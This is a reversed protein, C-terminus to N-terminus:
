KLIRNIYGSTANENFKIVGPNGIVLSNDPVDFNVLAGPSILVNNGIIIKGAIISHAGMWVNNGITPAGKLNGRSSQGITVGHNINCNNGIIANHTIVITGFHGIFLGYGIETKYSIQFGYRIQYHKIIVRFIYKPLFFNISKAKRLFWTFRFGPVLLFTKLFIKISYKKGTYRYLDAEIVKDM